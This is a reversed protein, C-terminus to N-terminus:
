VMSTQYSQSIRRHVCKRPQCMGGELSCVWVLSSANQVHCLNVRTTRQGKAETSGSVGASKQEKINEIEHKM